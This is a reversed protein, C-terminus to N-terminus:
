KFKGAELSLQNFPWDIKM